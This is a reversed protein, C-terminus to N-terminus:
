CPLFRVRLHVDTICFFQKCLAIITKHFHFDLKKRTLETCDYASAEISEIVERIRDFVFTGLTSPCASSSFSLDSSVIESSESESLSTRIDSAAEESMISTLEQELKLV